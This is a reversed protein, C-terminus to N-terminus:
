FCHRRLYGSGLMDHKGAISRMYETGDLPHMRSDNGVALIEISRDFFIIVVGVESLLEAKFVVVDQHKLRGANNLAFSDFIRYTEYALEPIRWGSSM